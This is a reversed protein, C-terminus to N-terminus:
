GTVGPRAATDGTLQMASALADALSGRTVIHSLDIGLQTITQAISPRIGSVVCEAGMLRVASVTQLLHQAVATDVTPVGTIDIIAVRAENAQISELLNNMVVQTRASDLTGILPVALVHRWLRLVPTSLELVQSHQERIIRERGAAYVEFTLVGASDLLENVLLAARYRLASDETHREIAGLMTRKLAHIAMATARPEAGARARRESLSTLADRVAPDQDVIRSVPLTGAIATRLADLLGAAERRLEQGIRGGDPEQGAWDGALAARDEELVRALVARVQSDDTGLM